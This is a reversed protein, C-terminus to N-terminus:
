SRSGKTLAVTLEEPTWEDVAKVTWGAAAFAADRDPDPEPLMVAVKMRPWALEAQWGEDSLEYGVEPIPVAEQIEMFLTLADPHVLDAIDRLADPVREGSVRVAPPLVNPDPQPPGPVDDGTLSIPEMESWATIMGTGECVRLRHAQFADRNKVTLQVGDGVPVLFQILNSWYLWSQWMHKRAMLGQDRDDMVVIATVANGHRRDICLVIRVDHDDRVVRTVIKGGDAPPMPDGAVAMTVRDAVGTSHSVSDDDPPTALLGTLTATALTRWRDLDPDTLYEVLTDIPNGWAIRALREPDGGMQRYQTRATTQGKHRYPPWGRDVSSERWGEVDDWTVAFVFAGNAHLRNRKDADDHLRNHEPTAHYRHGDLYLAVRLPGADMRTFLVDPRTGPITHQQQVKWRLGGAPTSIRLEAESESLATMSVGETDRAWIRLKEAFRRELESEVIKLMSIETVGSVHETEWDHLLEDLLDIADTDSVLDYQSEPTYALLCRHCASRKPCDCADIHERATELVAKLEDPQSLRHLYGTGGPLTDFLVVFNRVQGVQHQDPMHATVTDLHALAGGYRRTVGLMLAARFSALKEMANLVSVPLLIRLVETQLEHALIVDTHGTNTNRNPCWARHHRRNRDAKPSFTSHSSTRQEPDGDTGTGGCSPCVWFPNLVVDHGAFPVQDQKDPRLIGLNFRRVTADKSFDAGFTQSRHRFATDIHSVDVADVVTYGVRDREDSDDRIHADDQRDESMVKTPVLVNFLQGSDAVAKGGCSVCPSTDQVANDTRVTGCAPCVRWKKIKPQKSTGIDLGSVQHRYGRVYYTNGPAVETLAIRAPRRYERLETDYRRDGEDTEGQSVLTAELVTAQDFLAYNPLLGYEILTSHASAAGMDGLLRRIGRMEARLQRKLRVHEEDADSLDSEARQVAELRERLEDRELEWSEEVGKVRLELGFQAFDRLRDASSEDIDDDFLALFESVYTQGSWVAVHRFRALWGLGGFLGSARRPLEPVNPLDGRGVKDLLFAVYQRRLIEVASLYSGPPTIEGALMMDPRAYFHRDRPRRGAVTVVMANGTSRGARGARQVMAAPNPPMGALVIASLDGIDIGLELTSTASLVNPDTLETGRRFGAEVTERQERTLTGTHEAALVRFVESNRYLHRYYDDQPVEPRTTLRGICRYRPCPVHLWDGRRKPPITQRWSCTNCGILADPLDDEALGHVLVHGPTLGYVHTKGDLSRRALLNMDFLRNLLEPLYLRAAQENLHLCRRTWDMYWSHRATAVAHHTKGDFRDILFEPASVGDPFAPMGAPRGGWVAWRYRGAQDIWSRLWDHKIGGRGRLRELLGRVHVSLERNTPLPMPLQPARCAHLADLAAEGVRDDFAVEVAATRTLELTRGSRHRVGLEMITDFALRDAITKWATASGDSDGALLQAIERDDHLETPVVASLAGGAVLSEVASAMVENLPKPEGDVLQDTLLSRLSFGRSRASLFGARHAADQVSDSFALTKKADGKELSTTFLQTVVVSALTATGTGLYRIGNDLGCAPCRDHQAGTDDELDVLVPVGDAYHAEPDPADPVAEHRAPDFAGVTGDDHLVHLSPDRHETEAKTAVMLPRLRRKARKTVTSYIPDPAVTLRHREVEPSLAQWGDRGCHRCVVAPLVTNSMDRAGYWHFVPVHGVERLVRNVARMWLHLEVHLLPRDPNDPDRATSILAIFRALAEAVQGPNHKFTRRWPYLLAIQNAAFIDEYTHLAGDTMARLVAATLPHSRLRRGLEVPELDARGVVAEAIRELAQPDRLPDGADILVQPTPLDLEDVFDDDNKDSADIFEDPTVREETIVSDADFAVGFVTAAVARVAETSDTGDGVLTASTAVPCFEREVVARLRRLLMAVDTGQAGDYTHFEDVVVYTLPSDQWLPADAPRQLLLDLMKYNTILVDPPTRRIDTRDTLVNRYTTAATDGVYLGATVDALGPDDLLDNLRDAQDAALANMPYLLVAKVGPTAAHRRCHDLVPYLFSETKGSGTGTAVLTPEPTSHVSSLRRWAKAQHRHPTFGERRWQLHDRWDDDAERFPTRLRLFPGKVVGAEGKTLFDKFAESAAPAVLGYTTTLYQPLHRRLQDAALTPKM